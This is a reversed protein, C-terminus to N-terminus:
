RQREVSRYISAADEGGAELFKEGQMRPEFWVTMVGVVHGARDVVPAGSFGRIDVPPDIDYRFRDATRATIKGAYVNQKCAAEDYPCGVLFVEEGVEVAKQRLRLPTAPLPKGTDKLTLILWDLRRDDLGEAGVRGADVRQDQLTRPFLHWSQIVGDFAAVSVEPEVGGNQGLLHKATAALTRGDQTKILFASAGQLPTSGQFEARNTM